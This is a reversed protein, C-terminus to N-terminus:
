VPAIRILSTTGPAGFPMGALTVILDGGQAFRARRTMEDADPGDVIKANRTRRM